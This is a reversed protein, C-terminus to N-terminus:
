GYGQRRRRAKIRAAITGTVGIATFGLFGLFAGILPLWIAIILALVLLALAFSSAIELSIPYRGAQKATSSMDKMGVRVFGGILATFPGRLAIAGTGYSWSGAQAFRVRDDPIFDNVALTNFLGIRAEVANHSAPTTMIKNRTGTNQDDRVVGVNPNAPVSEALASQETM